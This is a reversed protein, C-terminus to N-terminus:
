PTPPAAAPRLRRRFLALAIALAIGGFVLALTPWAFRDDGLPLPRAAAVAAAVDDDLKAQLTGREVLGGSPSFMLDRSGSTWPSPPSSVLDVAIWDTRNEHAIETAGAALLERYARVDGVVPTGGVRAAVIRPAPLPDIGAALKALVGNADEEPWWRTTGDPEGVAVAGASPVYFISWVEGEDKITLVLFPAPAPATAVASGGSGRFYALLTERDATTRCAGAEGCVKLWEPNKAAAPGAVTLAALVVLLLRRM